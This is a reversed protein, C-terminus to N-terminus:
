TPGVGVIRLFVIEASQRQCDFDIAVRELVRRERVEFQALCVFLKKKISSKISSKINTITSLKLNKYPM